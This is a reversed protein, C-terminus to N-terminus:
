AAPWGCWTPPTHSTCPGALDIRRAQEATERDGGFPLKGMLQSVVTNRKYMRPPHVITGGLARGLRARGAATPKDEASEGSNQPEKHRSTDEPATSKNNAAGDASM